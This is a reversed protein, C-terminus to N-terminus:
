FPDLARGIGEGALLGLDLNALDELRVVEAGLERGLQPLLFLAQARLRGCVLLLRRAWRRSASPISTRSSANIPRPLRQHFFRTPRDPSKPEPTAGRESSRM